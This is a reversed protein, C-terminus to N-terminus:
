IVFEERILKSRDSPESHEDHLIRILAKNLYLILMNIIEKHRAKFHNNGSSAFSLIAMSDAEPVYLGGSIGFKLGFEAGQNMLCKSTKDNYQKAIDSWFQPCSFRAISRLVPDVMYFKQAMYVGLWEEPYNGNVVGTIKPFNCDTTFLGSISYDAELLEKSRLLLQKLANNDTCNQAGEIIELIEILEKKSFDKTSPM